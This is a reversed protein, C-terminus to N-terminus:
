FALSTKGKADEIEDEGSGEFNPLTHLYYFHGAGM